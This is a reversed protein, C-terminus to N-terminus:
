AAFINFHRNDVGFCTHFYNRLLHHGVCFVANNHIELRRLELGLKFILVTLAASIFKDQACMVLKSIILCVVVAVHPEKDVQRVFRILPLHVFRLVPLDAGIRIAGVAALSHIDTCVVPAVAVGANGASPDAGHADGPLRGIWLRSVTVSAIVFVENLKRDLRASTVKSILPVVSIVIGVSINLQIFSGVYLFVGFVTMCACFGIRQGNSQIVCHAALNQLILIFEHKDANDRAVATRHLGLRNTNSRLVVGRRILVSITHCICATPCVSM